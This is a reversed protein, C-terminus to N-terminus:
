AAPIAKNTMAKKWHIPTAQTYPFSLYMDQPYLANENLRYNFCKYSECVKVKRAKHKVKGSYRVTLKCSYIKDHQLFDISCTTSAIVCNMKRSLCIVSNIFISKPM